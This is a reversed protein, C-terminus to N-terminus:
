VNLEGLINNPITTKVIGKKILNKDIKESFVKIIKISILGSEQINEVFCLCLLEEYLKEGPRLRARAGTRRTRRFPGLVDAGHRQFSQRPEASKQRREEDARWAADHERMGPFLEDLAAALSQHFDAECLGLRRRDAATFVTVNM